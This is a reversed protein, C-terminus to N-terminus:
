NFNLAHLLSFVQPIGKIWSALIVNWCNSFHIIDKQKVLM